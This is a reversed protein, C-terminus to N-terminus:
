ARETMPYAALRPPSAPGTGSDGTQFGVAAVGEELQRVPDVSEVGPREGATSAWAEVAAVPARTVVLVEAGAVLPYGDRFDEYFVREPTGVPLLEPGSSTLDLRLAPLGRRQARHPPNGLAARGFM